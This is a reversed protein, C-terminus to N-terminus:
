EIRGKIVRMISQSMETVKSIDTMGSKLLVGTLKRKVERQHEESINWHPYKEFVDRLRNAKDEAKDIGQKRLMWFISYVEAPM